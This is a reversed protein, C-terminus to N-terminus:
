GTTALPVSPLPVGRTGIVWWVAGFGTDGQGSLQGFRVDDVFYYLPYGGYTVQKTGDNRTTTGILDARVGPGAVARETITLPPWDTACAGYCTSGGHRDAEWMYLARGSGDTLYTGPVGKATLLTVELPPTTSRPPAEGATAACASLTLATAAVLLAGLLRRLGSDPPSSSTRTRVAAAARTTTM